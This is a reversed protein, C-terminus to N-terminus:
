RKWLILYGAVEKNVWGEEVRIKIHLQKLTGEDSKVNAPLQDRSVRKYQAAFTQGNLLMVSKPTNLKMM